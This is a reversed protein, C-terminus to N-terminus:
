FGMRTWKGEEDAPIGLMERVLSVYYRYNELPVGNPIRHDLGFIIGLDNKLSGVKYEVEKRIDEKTGRLVYKDIGAKFALRDGYKARCAVIDMGSGPEMPYFLNVGSEAICDLLPNMNGDSDHSFITAGQAKAAAWVKQYYPTVFERFLSPGILPGSKGAMDEHVFLNDIVLKGELREFIKLTTGAFTDLMDQIMEPEDYYAICLEEEGMLERAMDFGGPIEFHVLADNERAKRAREVADWDIRKEDFSFLPKIREWDEPTKVPYALPLPITATDTCLKVTRGLHDTSIVYGDGQELVKPEFGPFIKANAGCDVKDVWDFRFADLSLEAESAGQARWEEELGILKGFIEVFMPRPAGKFTVLDIYQQRTWRM